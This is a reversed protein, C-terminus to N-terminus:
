GVFGVEKLVMKVAQPVAAEVEPSMKDGFTMNDKIEVAVIAIQGPLDMKQKHAMELVRVFSVEHPSSVHETGGFDEPSISYVQGPTGGKTRISDIIVVKTRGVIEDLLRLGGVSAERVEVGPKGALHASVAQAVRPGVADDSLIPNGLGLVLTHAKRPKM